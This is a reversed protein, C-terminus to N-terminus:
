MSKLITLVTKIEDPKVKEPIRDNAVCDAFYEIEAAYANTQPLNIAGTDGTKEASMDIVTRDKQYIICKGNKYTVVADEFQFRYNAEFPYPADYFASEATVFFGPFEYTVSICDQGPHQTRHHHVHEPAGFTYVMFDLDHIHFDFPVFGSRSKDKMWNDWSWGPFGSFRCMYGSLLKGYKKSDYIEKLFEYEPWFRIVHAVMFKVNMQAATNYLRDVDEINLSLPKECLVNIGKKMAAEAYDAHFYSPVCIDVIDLNEKELMENYSSYHRKGPYLALREPRIDCIAVLEADKQAEWGAIHSRSIGGVGVLGVKLMHVESEATMPMSLDTLLYNSRLMM